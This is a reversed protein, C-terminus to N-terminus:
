WRPDGTAAGTSLPPGPEPAGRRRMTRPFRTRSNGRPDQDTSRGTRGERERAATLGGCFKGPDVLSRIRVFGAEFRRACPGSWSPWALMVPCAFRREANCRSISRSTSIPLQTRSGPRRSWGAELGKSKFVSVARPSTLFAILAKAAAARGGSGDSAVNKGRSM